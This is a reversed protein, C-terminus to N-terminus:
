KMGQMYNQRFLGEIMSQNPNQPLAPYGNPNAGRSELMQQLLQNVLKQKEEETFQPLQRPPKPEYWKPDTPFPQSPVIGGNFNRLPIDAM